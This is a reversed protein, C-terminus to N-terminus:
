LPFWRLHRLAEWFRLGFHTSLLGGSIASAGIVGFFVVPTNVAVVLWFGIIAGLIAGPVFRFMANLLSRDKAMINRGALTRTEAAAAMIGDVATPQLRKHAM